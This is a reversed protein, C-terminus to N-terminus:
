CPRISKHRKNWLQEALLSGDRQIAHKFAAALGQMKTGLPSRGGNNTSWTITEMAQTEIECLDNFSTLLTHCELNLEDATVM